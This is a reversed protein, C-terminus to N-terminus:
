KCSKLLEETMGKGWSPAITIGAPTTNFIEVAKKATACAEVPEQQFFKATGFQLQAMLGLARPNNPNLGTAKGYSQMAMMSYKQGRAQPDINIRLMHIFGELAVIESEDKKVDSAKTLAAQALDLYSDKKTLDAERTSMMAYGFAAYYYPEWKAKEAGGIREFVNVSKQLDEITAAKYVAEINKTMQETYKDPFVLLVIALMVTKM